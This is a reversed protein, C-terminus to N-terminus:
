SWENRYSNNHREQTKRHPPLIAPPQLSGAFSPVQVGLVLLLQCLLLLLLLLMFFALLPSFAFALFTSLGTAVTGNIIAIFTSDHPSCPKLHWIPCCAKGWWGGIRKAVESLSLSLSVMRESEWLYLTSPDWFLCRGAHRGLCQSGDESESQDLLLVARWMVMAWIAM